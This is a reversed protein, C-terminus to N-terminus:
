RRGLRRVPVRRLCRRRAPLDPSGAIRSGSASGDSVVLADVLQTLGIRVIAIRWGDARLGSLGARVPDSVPPFAALTLRRHEHILADTSARLAFRARLVAFFDARSGRGEDDAEIVLARAEADGPAWEDLKADLWRGFAADRDAVTNDLDLLLLPM